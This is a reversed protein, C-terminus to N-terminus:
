RNSTVLENVYIYYGLDSKNYVRLNYYSGQKEWDKLFGWGSWSMVSLNHAYSDYPNQYDGELVVLETIGDQNVDGSALEAIPRDLLSSGWILKPNEEKFSYLFLHSGWHNKNEDTELPSDSAYDGQKWLAVAFELFGDQNFDGVAYDSVVWDKETEWIKEKDELVSLVYDQWVLRVEEGDQNLDKDQVQPVNAFTRSGFIGKVAREQYDGEQWSFSVSEQFDLELMELMREQDEGGVFRPQSFDQIKIPIFELAEVGDKDLYISAIMGERTEESWMQDFVFNGLSYIIYKDKYREVIQFWHPHHGLVLDAGGDIARRAFDKQLANSYRKYETGSHMSIIVLDAEKKAEKLDFLLEEEKMIAVGGREETAELNGPYVYALFGIKIGKREIIKYQHAEGFDRGAGVGLIEEQKLLELTNELGKQGKNMIHNNALSLVDFGAWSLAPACEPDARFIMSPTYVPPGSLLPTELNGFTIDAKQLLGSTDEFPYKYDKYKVMKQGVNRSLMIDGVALLHVINDRSKIYMEPDFMDKPLNEQVDGSLPLRKFNKPFSALKENINKINFVLIGLIVVVLISIIAVFKVM